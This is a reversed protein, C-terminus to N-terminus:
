SSLGFFTEYKSKWAFPKQPSNEDRERCSSQVPTRNEIRVDVTGNGINPTLFGALWLGCRTILELIWHLVTRFIRGAVVYDNYECGEYVDSQQSM